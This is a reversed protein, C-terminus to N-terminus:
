EEMKISIVTKVYKKAASSLRKDDTVLISSDKAAASIYSADYYTAGAEVSISLVPLPDEISETRMNKIVETLTALAKEGEERTLTKKLYVQRWIANGVEYPALSLTVGGLLEDIKKESCLNIIASSDFINRM